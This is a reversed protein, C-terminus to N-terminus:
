KGNNNADNKDLADDVGDKVDEAGDRVDDGLEDVVGDNDTGDIADNAGNDNMDTDDAANDKADNKNETASESNQTAGNDKANKDSGCATLGMIAGTCMLVLVLKKFQKM